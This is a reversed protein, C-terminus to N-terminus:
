RWPKYSPGGRGGAHSKHGETNRGKCVVLYLGEDSRVWGAVEKRGGDDGIM